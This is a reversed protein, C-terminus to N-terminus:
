RRHRDPVDWAVAAPAGASAWPTDAIGAAGPYAADAVRQGGHQDRKARTGSARPNRRVPMGHMIRHEVGIGWVGLM